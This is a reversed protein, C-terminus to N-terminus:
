KYKLVSSPKRTQAPNPLKIIIKLCEKILLTPYVTKWPITEAAADEIVANYLKLDPLIVCRIRLAKKGSPRWREAM